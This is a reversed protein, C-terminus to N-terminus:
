SRIGRLSECCDHSRLSDGQVYRLVGAQLTTCRRGMSLIRKKIQNAAKGGRYYNVALDVGNEALVISIGAGIGRAGGTVLASKGKLNMKKEM